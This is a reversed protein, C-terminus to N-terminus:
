IINQEYCYFLLLKLVNKNTQFIEHTVSGSRAWGLEVTRSQDPNAPSDGPPTKFVAVTKLFEFNQEIQALAM